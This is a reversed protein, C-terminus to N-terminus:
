QEGLCIKKIMRYIWATTSQGDTLLTEKEQKTLLKSLTTIVTEDIEEKGLAKLAQIVLASKMAFGSIEKNSRHKFEIKVSGFSYSKYPGNSIYNWYAPVQTSLGLQNLATNGSPVISWNYNRAIALAVHHPSPLEYEQLLKSFKPFYYVGRLVRKIKKRMALRLLIQRVTDYDVIDTFDMAVFAQTDGTEIIREMVMNTYTNNM